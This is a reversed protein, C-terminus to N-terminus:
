KGQRLRELVWMRALASASLGRYEAEERLSQIQEKPFRITLTDDKKIRHVGVPAEQPATHTDWYDAEAALTTFGEAPQITGNPVRKIQIM